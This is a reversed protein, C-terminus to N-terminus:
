KMMASENELVFVSIFPTIKQETRLRLGAQHFASLWTARSYFHLFGITYALFNVPDRLHEVVVARGGPALVRGLERLFAVRQAPRRIEHAALLVVVLNTAAAPLPLAPPRVAETGPYPPCAARARRISVETHETPDYFDLVRLQAAPFRQCLRASSEDFGAHINVLQRPPADGTDLWEFSYLGALDYVYWSVLLSVVTPVLVAALALGLGLRWAASDARLVLGATLALAVGAAGAYFHWNFRIINGVGEGARRM